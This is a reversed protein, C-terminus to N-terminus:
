IAPFFLFYVFLFFGVALCSFCFLVFWFKINIAICSKEKKKRCVQVVCGMSLFQTPDRIIKAIVQDAVARALKDM